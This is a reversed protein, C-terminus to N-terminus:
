WYTSVIKRNVFSILIIQIVSLISDWYVELEQPDNPLNKNVVQSKSLAVATKDVLYSSPPENPVENYAEFVEYESISCEIAEKRIKETQVGESFMYNNFTNLGQSVYLDNGPKNELLNLYKTNRESVAAGDPTDANALVSQLDTLWIIDTEELLIDQDDFNKDEERSNNSM